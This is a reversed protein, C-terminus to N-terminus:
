EMRRPRKEWMFLTALICAGGFATLAQMEQNYGRAFVRRLLVQVDPPLKNITQASELVGNLQVPSLFHKAESKVKDNLINTCAALGISGGLIRAQTVAGIFVATDKDKIVTPAGILLSSLTLGIGLGLIVQYGYQGSPVNPDSVKLSGMLALGITQLIAAALFVYIPPIKLKQILYGSTVSGLPSCLMLALLRWGANFASLDNVVQFRQPILVVAPIFIAGGFLANLLYGLTFRDTLLRWPLIPERAEGRGSLVKQWLFFLIWLVVSLCLLSLVVSSKWQYETGGEELASVFLISAALVLFAGLFDISRVGAMNFSQLIKASKESRYPFGAPLALFIMVLVVFGPPVNLLFVWRWTTNGSILGGLLPGLTASFGYASSLIGSLAAFREKPVMQLSIVFVLTYIGGGGIGQFARFVVLQTFTSAAGCAGSFVTFLFVTLLMLPKRGFVDSFRSLIILFGSYTLLYSTVIWNNKEFGNLANTIAVLATSVITTEMTSLFLSLCLAVTLVHLRWGHLYFIAREQEPDEQM